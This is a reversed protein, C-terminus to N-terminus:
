VVRPRDWVLHRGILSSLFLALCFLTTKLRLFDNGILRLSTNVRNYVIQISSYALAKYEIRNKRWLISIMCHNRYSIFQILAHETPESLHNKSTVALPHIICWEFRSSSSTRNIPWKLDNSNMQLWFFEAFLQFKWSFLALLCWLLLTEHHIDIYKIKKFIEFNNKM